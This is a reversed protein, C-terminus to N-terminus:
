DKANNKCALTCYRKGSKGVIGGGRIPKGCFACGETITAVVKKKTTSKKPKRPM